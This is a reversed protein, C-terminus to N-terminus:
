ACYQVAIGGYLVNHGRHDGTRDGTPPLVPMGVGRTVLRVGLVIRGIWGASLPIWRISIWPEKIVAGCSKGVAILDKSEIGPGRIV